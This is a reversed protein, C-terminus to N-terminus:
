IIILGNEMILQNIQGNIYEKVGNKVMKLNVKM